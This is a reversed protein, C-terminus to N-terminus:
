APGSAARKPRTLAATTIWAAAVGIVAAPLADVGSSGVLLEAFLLASIVFKTGAAMGAAAGIAVALTPSMDFWVVPLTAVAIGLFVAPFVPGGRFGCGLCVAYAIAKAVFLVVITATSTETILAPISTQGSFLVDQSDAGLGSAILALLGVAFGGGILVLAAGRRGIQGALSTGLGRVLHMALALVVGIVLAILLDVVRTGDYAPLDPIKLASANLGNWDGLGVFILYGVAAAVLGPLLVPIAAAGLGISAELLLMGAVLPGGFLASVASFSGAGGMIETEQPSLRTFLTVAVGVASGLAILPAEPGLVAGFALTGFAALAISPVHALATAGSGIGMLPSHGGGGPLLTVAGLVFVAGLTPLGVVLFWPPSSYGLADPLDTWLLDEGLHVAALFLAAVLAAPIGIAAGLLM